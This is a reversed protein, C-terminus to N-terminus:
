RALRPNLSDVIVDTVLNVILYCLAVLVVGGQILPYDKGNVANILQTGIGPWNFVSEVFFVGTILTGIELGVVNVISPLTNRGAHKVLLSGEGAGQSRFTRYHDSQREQIVGLRTFRALVLMSLLGAAIGPLVLHQLLDLPGGGNRSYMGSVPLVNLQLAFVWILILGFWYISLNSGIQAVLMTARDILKGHFRGAVVGILVGFVACFVVGAFTLILTNVFSPGLVDFVPTGFAISNGGGETVLSRLWIFYQQWLPENLGYSAKIEAIQEPSHTNSYKAEIPDGPTLRGLLFTLVSIVAIVPLLNLLRRGVHSLTRM